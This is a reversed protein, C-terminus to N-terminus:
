QYVQAMHEAAMQQHAESHGNKSNEHFMAAQLHEAANGNMAIKASAPMCNNMGTVQHLNTNNKMMAAHDIASPTTNLDAAFSSFAVGSLLIAFIPFAHIKM